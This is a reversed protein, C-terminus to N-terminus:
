SQEKRNCPFHSAYRSELLIDDRLTRYKIFYKPVNPSKKWQPNVEGKDQLLGCWVCRKTPPVFEVWSHKLKKTM